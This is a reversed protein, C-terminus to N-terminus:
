ASVEIAALMHTIAAYAQQPVVGNGCAKLAENRTIGPVDTIWGAPLGMMWETLRPSLRHTGGRGTPETPDTATRGIVTEWRQIAPAYEGFRELHGAKAMGNLLLEDGRAGGRREHGGTSDAVSPTPLLRAAEIELSKGHGNGNGHAAKMKATWADWEDPTYAKGMDNCAPTPLLHVVASPLMYDGSSGRQNPGGKDGDGARPTPLLAVPESDSNAPRGSWGRTGRAREHGLDDSDATTAGNGAPDRRAGALQTAGLRERGGSSPYAVLFVRFRGHCAGVDAARLGCWQADYGIDALDALVSGLARLDFDSGDGMCFTCPEVPGIPTGGEAIGGCDGCTEPRPPEASAVGGQDALVSGAHGRELGRAWESAESSGPSTVRDGAGTAGARAQDELSTRGEGVACGRGARQGDVDLSRGVPRDRGADLSSDRGVAPSAGGVAAEGPTDDWSGGDGSLDAEQGSPVRVGGWRSDGSCVCPQADSVRRAEASLLGRVNEAVVLSPRIIRIADHMYSWLGSRSDATMGARKGAHSLDQCPFGGTIIDVPEVTTWDVATLDGINPVDPYRHALIKCAGKDIDSVWALETDLVQGLGLGLGNYGSFLSGEKLKM